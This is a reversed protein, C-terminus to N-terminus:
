DNSSETDPTYNPAIVQLKEPRVTVELPGPVSILEGDIQIQDQRERCVVLRQFSRTILRPARDLTGDYLRLVNAALVPVDQQLGVVLVLRGDDARAGPAIQAGGGFQSLNAITFLMPRTLNLDEGDVEIAFDQPRYEFLEQVGALFYPLIGRMPYREFARVLAADWAMSCTVLFPHGNVDGVDSQQTPATALAEVARAPQLPIGFHRAFGNGSGTPIVGLRVNKGILVRGVTNVTGDGGAVIITDAGREIAREAKEISDTKSQSFQYILHTDPRSEWHTDFARRVANFNDLIGSNPNILVLTDPMGNSKKHQL